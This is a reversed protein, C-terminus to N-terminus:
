TAPFRAVYNDALKSWKMLRLDFEFLDNNNVYEGATQLKGGSILIVDEGIMEARHRSIWGPSDGSTSIIEIRLTRTDLRLVQTAGVRRMDKYGLSGILIIDNEIPTATHFDTPPFTDKPYLYFERRGGPYEVVVDNYICFDYDYADEHEGAVHITRGDPLTTSTRGFREWSWFPGPTCDRYSSHSFDYRYDNDSSEHRLHQRLRYGTWNNSAALNWLDNEVFEPNITGYRTRHSPSSQSSM